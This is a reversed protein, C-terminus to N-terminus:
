TTEGALLSVPLMTTQRSPRGNRIRELLVRVGYQGIEVIPQNVTTLRPHIIQGAPLADFGVLAIDDPVRVGRETFARLAGMATLDNAAFVADFKAKEDLLRCANVYGDNMDYGCTRVSPKLGAEQVAKLYGAKRDAASTSLAFGELHVIGKRGREALHRTAIYGGERNDCDVYPVHKNRSDPKRGVIVVPIDAPITTDFAAIPIIHGDCFGRNLASLIGEGSNWQDFAVFTLSLDYGESQAESAMGQFLKMQYESSFLGGWNPCLVQLRQSRGTKLAHAVPNRTFGKERAIRLIKESTTKSYHSLDKGNLVRSVTATSVGVLRAIDRTTVGKREM